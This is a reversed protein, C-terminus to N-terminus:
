SEDIKSIQSGSDWVVTVTMNRSPMILILSSKFAQWNLIIPSLLFTLQHHFHRLQPSHRPERRCDGAPARQEWQLADRQFSHVQLWLLWGALHWMNVMISQVLLIRSGIAEDCLIWDICKRKTTRAYFSTLLLPGFVMCLVASALLSSYQFKDYWVPLHVHNIDIIKTKQGCSFCWVM